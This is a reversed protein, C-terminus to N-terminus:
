RGPRAPGLFWRSNSLRRRKDPGLERAREVFAKHLAGQAEGTETRLRALAAELAEPQFPERTLAERVAQRASDVAERRPNLM